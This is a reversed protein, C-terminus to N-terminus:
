RLSAFQSRSAIAREIIPVRAKLGRITSLPVRCSPRSARRRRAVGKTTDSRVDPSQEAIFCEDAGATGPAGRRWEPRRSQELRPPTARGPQDTWPAPRAACASSVAAAATRRHRRYRRLPPRHSKETPGLLPLARSPAGKASRSEASSRSPEGASTPGLRVQRAGEATVGDATATPHLLFWCCKAFNFGPAHNTGSM